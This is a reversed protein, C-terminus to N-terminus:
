LECSTETDVADSICADRAGAGGNVTESFAIGDLADLSDNGFGGQLDDRGKGGTLDDAGKRGLVTDGGHGAMVFDDGTGGDIFDDGKGGTLTDNGAGGYLTDSGLSGKLIDNGGLGCIVDDGATGQLLPNSVGDDDGATGTITCVTGGASAHTAGLSFVTGLLLAGTSVKVLMSRVTM